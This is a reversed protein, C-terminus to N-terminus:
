LPMAAKLLLAQQKLPISQSSPLNSKSKSLVGLLVLAVLVVVVILIILGDKGLGGAKAKQTTQQDVQTLISASTKLACKFTDNSKQSFSIDGTKSSEVYIFNDKQVQNIDLGCENKIIETVKNTIDKKSDNITINVSFVSIGGTKAEASQLGKQIAKVSGSVATQIACNASVNCEQDFRIDGVSSDVVIIEQGCQIQSCKAKCENKIEQTLSNLNKQNDINIVSSISPGM